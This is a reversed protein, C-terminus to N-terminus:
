RVRKWFVVGDEDFAPAFNRRLYEAVLPARDANSSGDVNANSGPFAILVARIRQNRQPHVSEAPFRVIVSGSNVIASRSDMIASRSDVIAGRSDM